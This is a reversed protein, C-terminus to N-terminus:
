RSRLSRRPHTMLVEELERPYVNFGGRIIMDKKRDVIYVPLRREDIRGLDGSHFWGNRIAEATAEPRKYYGKMINHGRIVVEGIEGSRCRSTTPTSSRAGRRRCDAPRRHRAEVTSELQNFTAM